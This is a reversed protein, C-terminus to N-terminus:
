IMLGQANNYATSPDKGFVSLVKGACLWCMAEIIQTDNIQEANKKAIYLFEAVKHTQEFTSYYEIIVGSSDRSLVGVPRAIGARLFRNAQRNSVMDGKMSLETVSRQWDSMKLSVLRLFDEPVRIIGITPISDDQEITVSTAGQTIELRNFPAKLLVEVACEDLLSDIITDIAKEDAIGVDVIPTDSPAIEDIKVKVKNVLAVRDM